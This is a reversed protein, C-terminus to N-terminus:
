WGVGDEEGPHSPQERAIAALDHLPDYIEDERLAAPQTPKSARHAPGLGRGKGRHDEEHVGKATVCTDHDRVVAADDHRGAPRVFAARNRFHHV